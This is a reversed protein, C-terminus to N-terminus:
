LMAAILDGYQQTILTVEQRLRKVIEPVRAAPMSKTSCIATVGAFPLGDTGAITVSVASVESTVDNRHYGFGCRRSRRYMRMYGDLHHEEHLRIDKTNAALINDRLVAPMGVLMANGTAAALLPRRTGRRSMLTAYASGVNDILVYSDGSRLALFVSSNTDAALKVLHSHCAAQFAFHAPLTLSLDYLMPGPVYRRDGERQKVLRMNSLAGLIRHTTSNSLDCYRALDTLRWGVQARSAVTTLLLVAREIAQTGTTENFDTM